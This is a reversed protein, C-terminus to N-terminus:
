SEGEKGFALSKERQEKTPPDPFSKHRDFAWRLMRDRAFYDHRKLVKWMAKMAIVEPDIRKTM